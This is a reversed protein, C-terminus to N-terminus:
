VTIGAQKETPLPPLTDVPKTKKTRTRKQEGQGKVTNTRHELVISSLIDYIEVSETRMKELWKKFANRVTSEAKKEFPKFGWTVAFTTKKNPNEGGFAHYLMDGTLHSIDITRQEEGSDTPVTLVLKGENALKVREEVTEAMEKNTPTKRQEWSCVGNKGISVTRQVFPKFHSENSFVTVDIGNKVLWALRICLSQYRKDPQRRVGKKIALNMYRETGDKNGYVRWYSAHIGGELIMRELAADELKSSTELHKNAANEADHSNMVFLVDLKAQLEKITM